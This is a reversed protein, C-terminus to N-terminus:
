FRGSYSVRAGGAVPGIGVQSTQSSDPALLYLAAGGLLAAGGAVFGITSILAADLAEDSLTEGAEDTCVRSGCYDDAEKDKNIARVGFISGVTL